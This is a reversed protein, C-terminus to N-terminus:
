AGNHRFIYRVLPSQRYDLAACLPSQPAMRTTVNLTLPTDRNTEATPRGCNALLVSKYVAVGQVDSREMNSSQSPRAPWCRALRFRRCDGRCGAQM